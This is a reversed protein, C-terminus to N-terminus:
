RAKAEEQVERQLLEVMDDLSDSLMSITDDLSLSGILGGRQDVVPLQRVGAARMKEVASHVDESAVAVVLKTTMIEAATTTQWSRGEAEVRLALDRDTLIGVPVLIAEAPKERGHKDPGSAVLPRGEEASPLYARKEAVIVSRLHEDRMLRAVEVVPTDPAVTVLQPQCIDGVSHWSQRHPVYEYVRHVATLFWRPLLLLIALILGEAFPIGPTLEDTVLLVLIWLLAARRYSRKQKRRNAKVKEAMSHAKPSASKLIKYAKKAWPSKEPCRGCSLIYNNENINTFESHVGM